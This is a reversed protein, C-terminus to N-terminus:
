GLKTPPNRRREPLQRREWKKYAAEMAHRGGEFPTGKSMMAAAEYAQRWTLRKPAPEDPSPILWQHAHDRCFCVWRWRQEIKSIKPVQAELGALAALITRLAELSLWWVDAPPACGKEKWSLEFEALKADFWPNGTRRVTKADIEVQERLKAATAADIEGNELKTQIYGKRDLVALVVRVFWEGLDIGDKCIREAVRLEPRKGKIRKM